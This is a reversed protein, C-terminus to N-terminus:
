NDHRELGRQDTAIEWDKRTKWFRTLRSDQGADQLIDRLRPKDSTKRLILSQNHSLIGSVHLARRDGETLLHTSCGHRWPHHWRWQSWMLSITKENGERNKPLLDSLRAWGWPAPLLSCHKVEQLPSCRRINNPIRRYPVNILQNVQEVMWKYSYLTM